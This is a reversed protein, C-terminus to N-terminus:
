QPECIAHAAGVIERKGFITSVEQRLKVLYTCVGESESTLYEAEVAPGVLRFLREQALADGSIAGARAAVAAAHGLQHSVKVTLAIQFLAMTILAILGLTGITEVLASGSEKNDPRPSPM